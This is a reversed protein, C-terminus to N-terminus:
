LQMETLPETEPIPALRPLVPQWPGLNEHSHARAQVEKEITFLVSQAVYAAGIVLGIGFGFLFGPIMWKM